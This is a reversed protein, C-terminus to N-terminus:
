PGSTGVGPQAVIVQEYKEKFIKIGGYLAEAVSQRFRRSMMLREEAPNSLYGVEVLVNPMSAGVLVLFGAQRVGRSETTLRRAMERELISALDESEKMFASQALTALIVGEGSLSDYAATSEELRIVSNERRAVEIAEATKGPRLLYIEFGRTNKKRYFNAHISIFLKGGDRNARRGRDKLPVFVDEDRTYVVRVDLHHTLLKGLRRVIDLALTKEKLGRPGISGPDKGGHGADLVVTDILWRQSDRFLNERVSPDMSRAPKRLSIVIEHPDTTQYMEPSEVEGRLRFALEASEPKQIPVIRRVVGKVPGEAIRASDVRGGMVTLYLWGKNMWSQFEESAFERTTLVKILTGNTKEVVRVGTINATQIDMTLLSANADYEISGPLISDLRRVLSELPVGLHGDSFTVHVPLHLLRDDRGAPSLEEVVVYSCFASLRIRLGGLKIDLKRKESSYWTRADLVSALDHARVYVVGESTWSSLTASQEADDAFSVRITGM